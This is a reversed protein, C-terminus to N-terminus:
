EQKDAEPVIESIDALKLILIELRKMLRLRSERLKPDDAMVMVDKFFAAVAPGFKAAEAFARAFGVGSTAAQEIATRRLEIEDRLALESDHVLHLEEGTAEAFHFAEFNANKAINKVRKFLVALQKFEPSESFLALAELKRIVVLPSMSDLEGVTVARVYRVDFGRGELVYRLREMVFALTSIGLEMRKPFEEPREHQTAAQQLLSFLAVREDIGTLEPLDIM